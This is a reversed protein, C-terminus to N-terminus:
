LVTNSFWMFLRMKCQSRLSSRKCKKHVFTSYFHWFIASKQSNKFVHRKRDFITVLRTLKFQVFIPSFHWFQFIWLRCKLQCFNMLFALFPWNQRNKSFRFIRSKQHNEVVTCVTIVYLPTDLEFRCFIQFIAEVQCKLGDLRKAKAGSFDSM